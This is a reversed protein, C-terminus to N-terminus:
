QVFNDKFRRDSIPEGMKETESRAPTKETFYSHPDEGHKMNSNILKDMKAWIMDDTVKTYKAVLEQM